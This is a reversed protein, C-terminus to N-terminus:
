QAPFSPPRSATAEARLSWGQAQQHRLWLQAYLGHQALLSAHTGREQIRGRNFVLIQDVSQITALRHAVIVLTKGQTLAAIARQILVENEPDAFATAEDLVVIPTNQLIARAITIRQREGGSLRAGWEGVQTDYGQPLNRIFGDAQAAWAAAEIASRNARPNGLAINEAITGDLLFTEQFVFSVWGMLQDPDLSRLDVGGLTIAGGEVDWFRPILRAVTSKGAGSPGVLATVSGPKLEFSVQDLALTAAGPVLATAAAPQPPYAFCVQEFRLTADRPILAQGPDPVPLPQLALVQGLSRAAANASNILYSLMMLPLFSGSVMPALLLFLLLQPLTVWGQLLMWAGVIAGLLLTPLAQFLLYGIRGATATSESWRKLTVTFSDLRQQFRSFSSSGNDFSRVVQMGQIYEVVANNIQQNADDYERRRLAYDKMALQMVGLSLPVLALMVLTLRWSVGLLLVLLTLVPTAYSRAILPTSDAVFSHLAKVDDQIIKKVAGSGLGMVQGLPLQALHHTLRKRLIEELRFAGLHSVRFAWVKTTLSGLTAIAAIAWLGGPSDMAAQGPLPAVAFVLTPILVLPVLGLAASLGALVMAWRIMGQVPQLIQWCTM